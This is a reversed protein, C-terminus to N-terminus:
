SETSNNIIFKNFLQGSNTLLMTNKNKSFFIANVMKLYANKNILKCYTHKAILM